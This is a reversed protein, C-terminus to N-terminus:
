GQGGLKVQALASYIAGSPKLDSKFLILEDVTFRGLSPVQCGALKSGLNHREQNGAQRNVRGITLHPSFGRKEEEFGLKQLWHDLERQLEPLVNGNEKIGIWVVRPRNLNPFCGLRGVEVEVPPFPAVIGPMQIEIQKAKDPSIEGLFKLTLHIAETRVWRIPPDGLDRTIAIQQQEIRSKIEEPIEVAIFTRM